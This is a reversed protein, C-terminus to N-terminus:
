VAHPQLKLIRELVKGLGIPVWMMVVVVVVVVMMMMTMMMMMLNEFDSFRISIKVQHKEKVELENHKDV